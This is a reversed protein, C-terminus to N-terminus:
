KDIVSRLARAAARAQNRCLTRETRRMTHSYGTLVVQAAGQALITAALKRLRSKMSATLYPVRVGFKNLAVTLTVFKRVAIMIAVCLKKNSAAFGQVHVSHPGVSLSRPVRLTASFKGNAKVLVRGLLFPRFFAYFDIMSGPLFGAGTIVVTGGEILVVTAHSAKGTTASAAISVKLGEGAAVLTDTSIRVPISTVSGSPTIIEARFAKQKSTKSGSELPTASPTVPSSAESTISSFSPDDTTATVTFSYSVSDSLGTVLCGPKGTSTCSEGGPSATVTYSVDNFSSINSPASWSVLVQGDGAVVGRIAISGLGAVSSQGIAFSQSATAALYDASPAVSADVVCEGVGTFSVVAGKLSCGSSTADLTFSVSGGPATAGLTYTGGVSPSSPPRSSFSITQSTAAVSFGSPASTSTDYDADGSYVAELDETGGPLATTTCTATGSSLGQEGCDPVTEYSLGDISYEFDVTGTAGSTVTATITVSSSYSSTTEPSTSLSTTSSSQATSSSRAISFTNPSSAVPAYANDGEYSATASYNGGASASIVCTYVAVNSSGTPGTTSDCTGVEGSLSWSVAGTPTAGGAPGTVTASFTVTDGLKPSSPSNTVTISPTAATTYSGTASYSTLGASDTAYIEFYYTTGVSLGSVSASFSSTGSGSDTTTTAAVPTAGSCAALTSSTSYCFGIGTDSDGNPDVSGSLTSATNSTNTVTGTSLTPTAATTFTGDTSYSTLGSTSDTAYIEFYYETGASLGTASASFGSTGSGSDTTTTAAVSTAGSCDSLTSSTSYCFGIGTDSDGNPNVTGSLTTASVSTNTTPTTSLTPVVTYYVWAEGAASDNSVKEHSGGVVANSGSIAVSDGFNADAQASPATLGTVEDWTTAFSNNFVWAEGAASDSNVTEGLAGVVANAGSIAVSGRFYADDQASPATLGTVEDWTTDSPNNFVWAEGAYIDGSLTEGYAGVVANAGSIAVSYGFYAYDQPSPNPLPAVENWTTDSPSNFVWAESAETDGDIGYDAGVVANSGSIAVASGFTAGAQPNPATLGTVESWTTAFPNNFVWAEGASARGSVTECWAGVVINSGSIAVSNGFNADAQANPATLAAVEDWAPGSPNFYVWAKGAASDSNVTEDPAGVVANSGSIAVSYGFEASAQPSPATLATAENWTTGGANNFVWAEGAGSDSNVTEDPAGVVANSGSIAVSYGFEASAQPIPAALATAENWAPDVQLPYLAGTDDIEISIARGGEAASMTAAIARGASDIVRLGSYSAVTAKARNALSLTSGSGRVTLGSVPLEIELPGSGKPRSSLTFAQELGASTQSFSEELGSRSYSAGGHRTSLRGSVGAMSRSRGVTGLGVKASWGTGSLLVSTNEYTAHLSSHAPAGQRALTREVAAQLSAPAQALTMQGKPSPSSVAKVASSNASASTSASAPTAVAMDAGIIGFVLLVSAIDALRKWGLAQRWAIRSSGM